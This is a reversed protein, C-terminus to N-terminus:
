LSRKEPMQCEKVRMHQQFLVTGSDSLSRYDAQVMDLTEEKGQNHIYSWILDFEGLTYTTTWLIESAWILWGSRDTMQWTAPLEAEPLLSGVPVM